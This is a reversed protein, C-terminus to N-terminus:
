GSMWLVLALASFGLAVLLSGLLMGIWLRSGGHLSPILERDEATLSDLQTRLRHQSQRVVLGILLTEIAAAIALVVMARLRALRVRNKSTQIASPIGDGILPTSVKAAEQPESGEITIPWAVLDTEGVGPPDPSVLLWIPEKPMSPLAISGFAGGAQDNELPISFAMLRAKESFFTLFAHRHPVPSAVFVIKSTLKAPDLWLAGIRVPLICDFAGTEDLESLAQIQLTATPFTPLVRIWAYGDDDTHTPLVPFSVGEGSISLKAKKVPIRDKSVRIIAKEEFAAALTSRALLLDIQL